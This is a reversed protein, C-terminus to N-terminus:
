KSLMNVFLRYAGPVGAPLQRFFSLGTYIYRGQGYAAVITSGDMPREGPDNMEFPQQYERSLDAPFYLGREQVWGEFDKETIANPYTFLKDQPRLFKVPAQENTVRDRSLRFPYPGLQDTVLGGSTNYQVVLTGGNKVYDMLRPQWYRLRDQTNYARVGTIIADYDELRGNMIDKETLLTVSYGVQRLSEAVKDGAGPIYGLKRGNYKLNVTVLRASAPPFINIAPIHDYEITTISKTYIDGNVDLAVTMTDTINQGNVKLPTVQFSVETEDGKRDLNFAISAQDAKFGAPLMLKVSGKVKEKMARIKVPVTQPAAQTYIYVQNGLEAVVPPAIVLPRYVEGKVPDTFKFIFPRTAEITQVGKDTSFDFHFTATLSPINEPNGILAENRISYTGLAHPDQLWYPQSIPTQAPVTLDKQLSVFKNPVLDQQVSAVEAGNVTVKRLKVPVQSRNILQLNYGMQGGPVVEAATSFAEAWIGACALILQETEKLKLTKWYGDPLSLISSRIALLTPVSAAPNGTNYNKIAAAIQEGINKGGEVREWGTQVGDMLDKEPAAGKITSFYEIATGRSSAVGFGQSKHQSRSEAAIEGYGRGLLPNYSGADIKFQDESTNNNGGFNYNNWLLRKAQWPKVSKLQEPYRKPDAAATFAEAALIASATHHGHGARSDAPFRCIIVDPQFKRIVWVVDGLIKKRDWITFTEEPNKSFGFDNARTFFQEAGDIRRAALLEQTRILGLLEAQENGILNQGGDGRTLSLYGTRYCSERALYALLRTNEDDPHAAVYLVSGLTNLKKLQVQIDAANMVPATQAHLGSLGALLAVALGIASRIKFM